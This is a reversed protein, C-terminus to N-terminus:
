EVSESKNEIKNQVAACVDDEIKKFGDKMIQEIKEKQEEKSKQIDEKLKEIETRNKECSAQFERIQDMLDDIHKGLGKAACVLEVYEDDNIKPKNDSM